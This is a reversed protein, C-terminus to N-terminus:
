ETSDIRVFNERNGSLGLYEEIVAKKVYTDDPIQVGFNIFGVFLFGDTNDDTPYFWTGNSDRM